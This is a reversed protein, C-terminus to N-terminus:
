STLAELEKEYREAWGYAKMEKMIDIAKSLHERAQLLNNQKQHFQALAAQSRGVWYDMEMEQFLIEAKDINKLAEEFRGADTYLEGLKLYGITYDPKYQAEEM